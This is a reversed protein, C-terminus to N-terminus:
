CQGNYQIKYRDQMKRRANQKNTEYDPRITSGKKTQQQTANSM